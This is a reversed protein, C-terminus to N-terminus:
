HQEVRDRLESCPINLLEAARSISMKDENLARLVLQELLEPAKELYKKDQGIYLDSVNVCNLLNAVLYLKDFYEEVILRLYSQAARSLSSQKKFEEHQYKRSSPVFKMFDSFPVGLVDAILRVTKTDPTEKGEEYATLMSTKIGTKVELEKKSLEQQLRYLKIKRGLM